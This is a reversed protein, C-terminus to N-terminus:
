ASNAYGRTGDISVHSIYISLTVDTESVEGVSSPPFRYQLYFRKTGVNDLSEVKAEMGRTGLTATAITQTEGRTFLTSGHAGPLWNTEISIPRVDEVTRGDSRRGTTLVLDRLHQKLLKKVAIKVDVADYIGAKGKAGARPKAKVVGALESAEDEESTNEGIASSPGEDSQESLVTVDDEDLSVPEDESTM